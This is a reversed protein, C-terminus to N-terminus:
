FKTQDHTVAMRQVVDKIQKAMQPKAGNVTIGLQRAFEAFEPKALAKSAADIREIITKVSSSDVDAMLPVINDAYRKAAAQLKENSSLPRVTGLSRVFEELCRVAENKKTPLEVSLISGLQRLDGVALKQLDKVIQEALESSQGALFLEIRQAIAQPGKSASATLTRVSKEIEALTQNPFVEYLGRIARFARKMENSLHPEISDFFEREAAMSM